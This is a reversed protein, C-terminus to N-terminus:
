RYINNKPVCCNVFLAILLTVFFLMMTYGLKEGERVIELKDVFLSTVIRPDSITTVCEENLQISWFDNDDDFQVAAVENNSVDRLVMSVNSIEDPLVYGLINHGQKLLFSINHTESDIFIQSDQFVDLRTRNTQFFLTPRYIDVVKYDWGVFRQLKSTTNTGNYITIHGFENVEVRYSEEGKIINDGFLYPTYHTGNLV